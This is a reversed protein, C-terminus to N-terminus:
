SQLRYNARLSEHARWGDDSQVCWTKDAKEMAFFNRTHANEKAGLQYGNDTNQFTLVPKNLLDPSPFGQLRVSRDMERELVYHKEDYKM